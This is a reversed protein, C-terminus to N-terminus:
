PLTRWGELSLLAKAWRETLTTLHQPSLTELARSVSKKLVAHSAGDTMRVLAGFLTAASSGLLPAPIPEHPPRVRCLDSSLVETVAEASSAVWSKLAEDFYFPNQTALHRYYPRPDPHTVAELPTRPPSLM